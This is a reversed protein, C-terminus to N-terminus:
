PTTEPSLAPGPVHAGEGYYAFALRIRAREAAPSAPDAMALLTRSLDGVPAAGKLMTVARRYQTLAEAADRPALLRRLRLPSLARSDEAPGGLAQGLSGGVNQTVHSLVAAVLAGRTAVTAQSAPYPSARDMRLALDVAAPESLADALTAARRLRARAGRDGQDGTLHAWWRFAVAEPTVPRDDSM